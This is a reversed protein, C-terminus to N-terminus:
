QQWRGSFNGQSSYLYPRKALQRTAALSQQLASVVVRQPWHQTRQKDQMVIYEQATM